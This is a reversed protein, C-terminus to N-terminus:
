RGGIGQQSPQTLQVTWDTEEGTDIEVFGTLDYGRKACDNIGHITFANDQTCMFAKGTWEVGVDYDLAHVYYYRSVLEGELLTECSNPSITWWGETTWGEPRKHGIAIGVRSPTKNCLKLDAQAPQFPLPALALLLALSVIAAGVAGKGLLIRWTLSLRMTEAGAQKGSDTECTVGSEM